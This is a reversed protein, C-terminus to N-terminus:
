GLWMGGIVASGRMDIILSSAGMQSMAVSM